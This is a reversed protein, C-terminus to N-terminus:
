MMAVLMSLIEVVEAGGGCVFVGVTGTCTSNSRVALQLSSIRAQPFGSGSEGTADHGLTLPLM